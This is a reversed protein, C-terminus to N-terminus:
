QNVEKILVVYDTYEGRKIEVMLVNPDEKTMYLGGAIDSFNTQYTGEYDSANGLYKDPTYVKTNTSCQVYNIGNVKVLGIVDFSEDNAEYSNENVQEKKSSYIDEPSIYDKEGINVSDELKVPPKNNFLDGQWLGIGLLAALCFCCVPTIIRKIVKKRNQRIVEHEEIRHFVDNAMQNYNKM